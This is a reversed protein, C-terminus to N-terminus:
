GIGDADLYALVHNVKSLDGPDLKLTSAPEGTGGYICPYQYLLKDVLCPLTHGVLPIAGAEYGTAEQVEDRSALVLKGRGLLGAAAELDIRGRAGSMILVVYEDDAKLVLAPATQGIDIGLVEAGEKATRISQKHRIIDFPIRREELIKRVNEM